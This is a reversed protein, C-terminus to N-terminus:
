SNHKFYFLYMLGFLTLFPDIINIESSRQKILHALGGTAIVQANTDFENKILTVLGDVMVVTGNM